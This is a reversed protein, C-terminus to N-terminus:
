DIHRRFGTLMILGAGLLLIVGPVPVPTGNLIVEVNDVAFFEDTGGQWGAGSTSWTITLTDSTHAISKFTEDHAMDYACDFWSTPQGATILNTGISLLVGEPPIYSQRDLYRSHFTESFITVGDIAVNFYDPDYSRWTDNGDWSNILALMFNLDISTHAELGNLQMTIAADDSYIYNDFGLTSYGESIRQSGGSFVSDVGTEFDYVTAMATQSIGLLILCSFFMMGYKKM